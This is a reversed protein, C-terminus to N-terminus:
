SGRLIIGQAPWSLDLVQGRRSFAKFGGTNIKMGPSNWEQSMEFIFPSWCVFIHASHLNEFYHEYELIVQPFKNYIWILLRKDCFNQYPLDLNKQTKNIICIINILWISHAIYYALCQCNLFIYIISNGTLLKGDRLCKIEWFQGIPIPM